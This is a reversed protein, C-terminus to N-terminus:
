VGIKLCCKGDGYNVPHAVENEQNKGSPNYAMKRIKRLHFM